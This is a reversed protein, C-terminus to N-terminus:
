GITSGGGIRGEKCRRRLLVDNVSAIWEAMLFVRVPRCLCRETERRLPLETVGRGRLDGLSSFVIGLVGRRM